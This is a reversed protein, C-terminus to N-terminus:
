KTDHYTEFANVRLISPIKVKLDDDDENSVRLKENRPNSM